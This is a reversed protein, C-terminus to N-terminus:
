SGDGRGGFSRLESGLREVYHADSHHATVYALAEDARRRAQEPDALVAEVARRLADPDGAPVGITLGKDVFSRALGPNQTVIVPSGSAIAEIMTTTGASYANGLLPIVTVTAQQYLSRLEGFEFHRIEMSEPVVDPMAVSTKTTFNPSVACIKMDCEVDGLALALTQYDRQELGCSAVLPRQQDDRHAPPRFFGVDTQESALVVHGGGTMDRLADVKDPTGAVPLLDLGARRVVSTLVRARQRQPATYYIALKLRRRKAVAVLAIALGVDDGSAYVLDGDAASAVLSRALAWQEPTGVLKAGLRDQWGAPGTPQRVEAGLEKALADLVHRPGEDREAREEFHAFDFVTGTAVFSRQISRSGDIAAEHSAVM